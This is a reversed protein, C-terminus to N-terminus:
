LMYIMDLEPCDYGMSTLAASKGATIHGHNFFMYCHLVLLCWIAQGTSSQYHFAQGLLVPDLHQLYAQWHFSKQVLTQTLVYRDKEIISDLAIKPSDDLVLARFGDFINVWYYIISLVLFVKLFYVM